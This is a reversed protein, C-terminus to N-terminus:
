HESDLTRGENGYSDKSRIRGNRGQIVLDVRDGIALRKAVRVANEQRRHRSVIRGGQKVRWRQRGRGPCVHVQHRRTM